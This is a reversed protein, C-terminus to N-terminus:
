PSSLEDLYDLLPVALNLGAGFAWEAGGSLPAFAQLTLNIEISHRYNIGVADLGLLASSRFPNGDSDATASVLAYLLGGAHLAHQVVFHEDRWSNLRIGIKESYVVPYQLADQGQAPDALWAAGGTVGVGLEMQWRPGRDYRRYLSVLFGDVDVVLADDEVLVFESFEQFLALLHRAEPDASIAEFLDANRAALLIEGVAAALTRDRGLLRQSPLASEAQGSTAPAVRATAPATEPAATISRDPRTTAAPASRLADPGERVCRALLDVLDMFEKAAAAGESTYEQREVDMYLYGIDHASRRVEGLGTETSLQARLAADVSDPGSQICYRLSRTYYGYAAAADAASKLMRISETMETPTQHYQYRNAQAVLADARAQAASSGTDAAVLRGMLDPEAGAALQQRDSGVLQLQAAVTARVTAVGLGWNTRLWRHLPSPDPPGEWSHILAILRVFAADLLLWRLRMDAHGDASCLTVWVSGSKEACAGSTQARALWDSVEVLLADQDVSQVDLTKGGEPLSDIREKLGTRVAAIDRAVAEPSRPASESCLLQTAGVMADLLSLYALVYDAALRHVLQEGRLKGIGDVADEVILKMAASQTGFVDRIRDQAIERALRELRKSLMRDITATDLTGRSYGGGTGIRFTPGSGDQSRARSPCWAVGMVVLTVAVLRKM